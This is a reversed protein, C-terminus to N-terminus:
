RRRGETLSRDVLAKLADHGPSGEILRQNVLLAPTGRIGLEMAAASDRAVISRVESSGLCSDFQAVNPVDSDEAFQRWPILGISDQHEFLLSHYAAFRGQQGACEAAVAAAVAHEHISSIPLHRYVLAVDDPYEALLRTIDGHAASCFPCQYDAFELITVAPEEPGIRSGVASYREWDEVDIPENPDPEGRIIQSVRNVGVVLALLTLLVLAGDLLRMVPRKM